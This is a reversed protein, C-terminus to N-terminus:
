RPDFARRQIAIVCNVGGENLARIKDRQRGDDQLERTKKGTWRLSGEPCDPENGSGTDEDEKGKDVDKLLVAEFDSDLDGSDIEEQERNEGNKNSADEVNTVNRLTKKRTLAVDEELSVSEEVDEDVEGDEKLDVAEPFAGDVPGIPLQRTLRGKPSSLQFHAPFRRRKHFFGSYICLIFHVRCTTLPKKKNFIFFTLITFMQEKLTVLSSDLQM